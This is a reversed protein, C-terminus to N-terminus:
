TRQQSEEVVIDFGCVEERIKELCTLEEEWVKRLQVLRLETLLGAQHPEVTVVWALTIYVNARFFECFRLVACITKLAAVQPIPVM